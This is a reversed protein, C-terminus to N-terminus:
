LTPWASLEISGRVTLFSGSGLPYSGTVLPVGTGTAGAGTANRFESLACVGISIPLLIVVQSGGPFMLGSGVWNNIDSSFLTSQVNYSQPQGSRAVVGAPVTMRLAGAQGNVSGNFQFRADFNFFGEVITYTAQITLPSATVAAGTGAASLLQPTWTYVPGSIYDWRANTSDYRFLRRTGTVFTLMGDYKNQANRSTNDAVRTIVKQDVDNALNQLDANINPAQTGLPYRLAASSTTAM